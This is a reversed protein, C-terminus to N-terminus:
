SVIVEVKQTPEVEAFPYGIASMLLDKIQSTNHTLSFQQNVQERGSQGLQRMLDPQTLLYELEAALAPPDKQPVLLGNQMHNVLEAIGSIDTSIVPLKMAMAELLVNPIGDRDGNETIRCPLVFIDAQRYLGILEDQTVKGVLTVIDGLQLTQILQEIEAQMPGYGVIACRFVCGKERLLRCSQLLDPFGKKECFRGVSLILPTEEVKPMAQNPHFRNLDLGHYSLHVPTFHTSIGQLFRQNCRTCTLVFKAKGMRRDLAGPETLYIDKAHATFSYPIGTLSQVLEAVATPINAFHVHLHTIGLKQLELALYGAQLLENLTKTEPRSRQFQWTKWFRQPNQPHLTVQSRLLKVASDISFKPLLSPIYTIPSRVESVAAHFREDQPPRLSFLHLKLGQRELELIENLIFTESVKPFTKMLYGIPAANLHRM